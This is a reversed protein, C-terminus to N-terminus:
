RGAETAPRRPHFVVPKAGAAPKTVTASVAAVMDVSGPAVFEEPRHMVPDDLNLGRQVVHGRFLDMGAAPAVETAKRVADMLPILGLPCGQGQAEPKFLALATTFGSAVCAVQYPCSRCAEHRMHMVGMRMTVQRASQRLRAELASDYDPFGRAVPAFGNREFLPVTLGAGGSAALHVGGALDLYLDGSFHEELFGAAAPLEHGYTQEILLGLSFPFALRYRARDPLWHEVLEAMWGILDGWRRRMVPASASVPILNVEMTRIGALLVLEHFQKAPLVDVVDPGLNVTFESIGFISITSEINRLYERRFGAPLVKKPSFVVNPLLVVSRKLSREHVRKLLPVADANPMLLATTFQVNTRMDYACEKAWDAVQEAPSLSLHEGQGLVVFAGGDDGEQRRVISLANRAFQSAWTMARAQPASHDRRQEDSLTCGDCSGYCKTVSEISVRRYSRHLQQEHDAM